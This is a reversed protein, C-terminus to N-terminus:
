DIPVGLLPLSVVQDIQISLSRYATKKILNNVM